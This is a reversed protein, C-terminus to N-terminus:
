QWNQCLFKASSQHAAYSIRGISGNGTGGNSDLVFAGVVQMGCFGIGMPIVGDCKQRRCRVRYGDGCWSKTSGALRTQSKSHGLSGRKIELQLQAGDRLLHRNATFCRDQFMGAIAAPQDVGFSNRFIWQIPAIWEHQGHQNGTHIVVTFQNILPREIVTSNGTPVDVAAICVVFEQQVPCRIIGLAPVIVNGVHRWHISHLLELNLGICIICLVSFRGSPHDVNRQFAACVKQM